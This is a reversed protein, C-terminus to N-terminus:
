LLMLAISYYCYFYQKIRTFYEKLWASDMDQHFGHHYMVLCSWQPRMNIVTIFVRSLQSLFLYILRTHTSFSHLSSSLTPIEAHNQILFRASVTHAFAHKFVRSRFDSFIGIHANQLHRHWRTDALMFLHTHTHAAPPTKETTDVHFCRKCMLPRCM